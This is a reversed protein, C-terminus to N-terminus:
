RAIPSFLILHVSTNNRILPDSGAAYEASNSLGDGDADGGAVVVGLAGFYFLEWADGLGNSDTDSPPDSLTPIKFSFLNKVQGMNALAYDDPTGSWPYADALGVSILVDYFPQAVNKLQGINIAQYDDASEAPDNWKNYLVGGPGNPLREKFEEYAQKAIHKVQGQNVAAYDDSMAGPTLVGRETWWAPAQAWLWFPAIALLALALVVRLGVTGRQVRSLLKLM